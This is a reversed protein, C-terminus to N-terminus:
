KTFNNCTERNRCCHNNGIINNRTIFYNSCDCTYIICGCVMLNTNKYRFYIKFNACDLTPKFDCFAVTNLLIGYTIFWQCCVCLSPLTWTDVHLLWNEVASPLNSYLFSIGMHMCVYHTFLRYIFGTGLCHSKPEILLMCIHDPRCFDVMQACFIM